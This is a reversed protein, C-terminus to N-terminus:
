FVIREKIHAISLVVINDENLVVAFVIIFDQMIFYALMLGIFILIFYCSLENQMIRDLRQANSEAPM